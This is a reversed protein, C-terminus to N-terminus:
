KVVGTDCNMSDTQLLAWLIVVLNSCILVVSNYFMSSKVIVYFYVHKSSYQCNWPVEGNHIPLYKDRLRLVIERFQQMTHARAMYNRIDANEQLAFSCFHNYKQIINTYLYLCM